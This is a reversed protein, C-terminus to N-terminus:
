RGSPRTAPQPVRTWDAISTVKGSADTRIPRPQGAREFAGGERVKGVEL